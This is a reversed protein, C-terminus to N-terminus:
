INQQVSSKRRYFLLYAAESEIDSKMLRVSSDNYEVWQKIISNYAYTTYHGGGLGGLHNEVGYLDYTYDISDNDNVKSLVYNNLDLTKSFNVMATIKQQAGQTIFYNYNNNSKNYASRFRKLHIILVQPAKYIEMQKAAQVHTKCNMCYWEDGKELIEQKAFQRLCDELSYQGNRQQRNQEIVFDKCKQFKLNNIDQRTILPNLIVHIYLLKTHFSEIDEQSDISLQKGNYFLQFPVESYLKFEQIFEEQSEPIKQSIQDLKINEKLFHSGEELILMFHSRFQKYIQYYLYSIQNTKTVICQRPFTVIKNKQNFNERGSCFYFEVHIQDEELSYYEKEVQFVFLQGDNQFLQKVNSYKQIRQIVLHDKILVFNMQDENIDLVKSLEQSIQNLDQDSKINLQIKLPTSEHSYIFYLSIHLLTYSPIPLSLSMFPDFSKSVRQCNPCIITSKYQGVMLEQIQSQNRLLYNNWFIQSAELDSENTIEIDKVTPKKLVRNLDEHLGDLLYSLFEHSDHQGYGYFQPAFKDIVRKLQYPSISSDSGFWMSKMLDCYTSALLGKTGLPNQKNLQNQFEKSLVFETFEYTNSLCQIAANMFCTNGLNQLGTLGSKITQEHNDEEDISDYAMYYRYSERRVNLPNFDYNNQSIISTNELQYQMEKNEKNSLDWDKNVKVECIFIDSNTFNIEEILTSKELLYGNLFQQNKKQMFKNQEELNIFKWWRLKNQFKFIRMVKQSLDSIFDKNNATIVRVEIPYDAPFFIFQIQRLILDVYRIQTQSHEVIMRKVDFGGYIKKLYEYIKFGVKIYDIGERLNEKIFYNTHKKPEFLDLDIQQMVYILIFGNIPGPHIVQEEIEVDIQIKLLNTLTDLENEINLCDSNSQIPTETVYSKWKNLWRVPILYVPMGDYEFYNLTREQKSLEGYTELQKKQNINKQKHSLLIEMQEIMYMFVLNNEVKQIYRRLQKLKSKASAYNNQDIYLNILDFALNFYKEEQNLEPSLLELIKIQVQKYRQSQSLILHIFHITNLKPANIENKLIQILSKLAESYKQREILQCCKEM